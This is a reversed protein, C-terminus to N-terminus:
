WTLFDKIRSKERFNFSLESGMVWTTQLSATIMMIRNKVNVNVCTLLMLIITWKLSKHPDGKVNYM